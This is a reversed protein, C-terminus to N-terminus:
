YTCSVKKIFSSGEHYPTRMLHTTTIERRHHIHTIPYQPTQHKPPPVLTYALIVATAATLRTLAAHM